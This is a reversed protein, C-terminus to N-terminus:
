DNIVGKNVRENFTKNPTQLAKIKQQANIPSKDDNIICGLHGVILRHHLAITHINCSNCRTLRPPESTSEAGKTRLTAPEFGARAAMYPSHALGESATPQSAEAHFELM